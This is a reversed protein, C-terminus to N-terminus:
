ETEILQENELAGLFHLVTDRCTLSDIEYEDLLKSAIDGVTIPKEILEWIRSGISNLSFYKGTELNMMVKEGNIDAVDIDERLKVITSLNILEKASM